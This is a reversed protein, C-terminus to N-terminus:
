GEVAPLALDGLPVAALVLRCHGEAQDQRVTLYPYQLRDYSIQLTQHEVPSASPRVVSRGVWCSKLLAIWILEEISFM